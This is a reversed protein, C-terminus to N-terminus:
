RDAAHDAHRRVEGEYKATVDAVQQYLAPRPQQADFVELYMRAVATLVALERRTIAVRDERGQPALRGAATMEQRLQDVDGVRFKLWGTGHNRRVPVLLGAAAWNRVTNEHVGLWRATDRVGLLEENM